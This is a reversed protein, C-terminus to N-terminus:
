MVYLMYYVAIGTLGSVLYSWLAILGLRKHKPRYEALLAYTKPKSTKAKRMIGRWVLILGLVFAVSSIISHIMVVPLYVAYYFTSHEPFLVTPELLRRGMYVVLFAVDVLVTALMVYHHNWGKHKRAQFYGAVIMVVILTELILSVDSLLTARTGMFGDM